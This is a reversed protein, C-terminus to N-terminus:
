ARRRWGLLGPVLLLAGGGGCGGYYGGAREASAGAYVEVEVEDVSTFDCADSLVVTVAYYGPEDPLTWTASGDAGAILEGGDVSWDLVPVLATDTTSTETTVTVLAGTPGSFLSTTAYITLAPDCGDAPDEVCDDDATGSCDNDVGDRCWDVSAPSREDDDDDCDGDVESYGDGDDDFGVTGNDVRGDCDEDVGDYTESGDPSITADSDDCDGEDETYGDGDDDFCETGEDVTDDCDNDIGDCLEAAGPYVSANTDDCDGSSEGIGDGDDDDPDAALAPITLVTILLFLM